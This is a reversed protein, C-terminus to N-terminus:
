AYFDKVTYFFENEILLYEVKLVKNQCAKMVLWVAMKRFFNVM